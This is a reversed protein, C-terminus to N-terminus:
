SFWRLGFHIATWVHLALLTYLTFSLIIHLKLWIAFARKFTEHTRIAYEVDAMSESLRLARAAVNLGPEKPSDESLFLRAGLRRFLSSMSRVQVAREPHEQLERVTSEYAATLSTLLSRKDKLEEGIQGMLHRGIFGSVVVILTMATLAIGLHSEFKHGTHLLVLIPGIVGAYIHIALLTRMSVRATIFAKLPKIRKIILYALPVLMLMSGIVALVGGALSGAFRPSHHFAFGLWVMLMLAVLGGVITRENEKM